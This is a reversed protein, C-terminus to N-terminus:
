KAAVRFEFSLPKQITGIELPLFIGFTTGDLAKALAIDVPFLEAEKWGDDSLEIGGIPILEESIESGPPVVTPEQREEKAAYRIGSHMVKQARKDRGIYSIKNWDVTIPQASKNALVIGIRSKHFSFRIAYAQTSYYDSASKLPKIMEIAYSAVPEGVVFTIVCDSIEKADGAIWYEVGVGTRTEDAGPLLKGVTYRSPSSGAIVMKQGDSRLFAIEFTAYNWTRITKNTVKALLHLTDHSFETTELALESFVFVGEPTTVEREPLARKEASLTSPSLMVLCAVFARVGCSLRMGLSGLHSELGETLM